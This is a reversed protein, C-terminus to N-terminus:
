GATTTTVVASGIVVNGIADVAVCLTSSLCSVGNLSNPGDVNIVTWAV